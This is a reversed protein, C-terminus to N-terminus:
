VAEVYGLRELVDLVKDLDVGFAANQTIVQRRWVCHHSFTGRKCTIVEGAGLGLVYDLLRYVELRKQDRRYEDDADYARFIEESVLRQIEAYKAIRTQDTRDFQLHRGGAHHAIIRLFRRLIGRSGYSLYDKFDAYFDSVEPPIREEDMAWCCLAELEHWCCPLYETAVSISGYESEIQERARQEYRNKTERGSIAIFSAGTGTMINKLSSLIGQIQADEGIKDLEDLVFVLKFELNKGLMFHRASRRARQIGGALSRWLRKHVAEAVYLDPMASIIAQIDEEAVPDSYEGFVLELGRVSSRERKSVLKPLLADLMNGALEAQVSSVTKESTSQKISGFLTRIYAREVRNRVSEPRGQLEEYLRRIIRHKLKVEDIPRAVNLAIHVIECDGEARLDAIVKNIFSTKGVGMPGCLLLCGGESKLFQRLRQCLKEEGALRVAASARSRASFDREVLARYVFRFDSRLPIELTTGDETM